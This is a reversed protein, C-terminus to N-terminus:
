SAVKELRENAHLKWAIGDDDKFQLVARSSGLETDRFLPSSFEASKSRALIRLPQGGARGPSEVWTAPQEGFTVSLDYLPADSGNVVTVFWQNANELQGTEDNLEAGHAQESLRVQRAQSSRRDALDATLAQRELALNASQQAIFERQEAIQSQQSKLTSRTYFAAVAAFGGAIWTPADGWDIGTM